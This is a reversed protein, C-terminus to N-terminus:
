ERKRWSGPEKAICKWREEKTFRFKRGDIENEYEACYFTIVSRRGNYVLDIEECHERAIKELCNFDHQASSYYSAGIIGGIFLLLFFFNLIGKLFENM